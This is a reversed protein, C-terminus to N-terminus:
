REQEIDKYSYSHLGFGRAVYERDMSMDRKKKEEPNKSDNHLIGTKGIGPVQQPGIDRPIKEPPTWLGKGGQKGTVPEDYM